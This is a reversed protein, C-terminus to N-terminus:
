FRICFRDFNKNFILELTVALIWHLCTMKSHLEFDQCVSLVSLCRLCQRHLHSFRIYCLSLCVHLSYPTQTCHLWVSDVNTHVSFHRRHSDHHIYACRMRSHQRQQRRQQRRQQTYIHTINMKCIVLFLYLKLLIM